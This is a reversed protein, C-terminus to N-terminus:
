YALIDQIDYQSIYDKIKDVFIQMQEVTKINQIEKMAETKNRCYRRIALLYCIYELKRKCVNYAKIEEIDPFLYTGLIMKLVGTYTIYTEGDHEITEVEIRRKQVRNKSPVIIYLM